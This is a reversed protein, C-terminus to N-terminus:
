TLKCPAGAEINCLITATGPEKPIATIQLTQGPTVTWSSGDTIMSCASLSPAPLVNNVSDQDYLETFLVNSYAKAEYMCAKDASNVTYISYIPISVAALLGIIAVVVILEILTFGKM